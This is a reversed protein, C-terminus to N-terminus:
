AAGDREALARARAVPGFEREWHEIERRASELREELAKIVDDQLRVRTRLRRMETPDALRRRDQLERIVDEAGALLRATAEQRARLDNVEAVVRDLQRAAVDARVREIRAQRWPNM